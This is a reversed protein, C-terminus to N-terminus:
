EDADCIIRAATEVDRCASLDDGRKKLFRTVRALLTLYERHRDAPGVICVMVRVPLEDLSGYDPIGKKSIGIALSFRDESEVKGHPLAYGLGIGTSLINERDLVANFCDLRRRSDAEPVIASVLEELAAEKSTSEIFLIREPRVLDALSKM